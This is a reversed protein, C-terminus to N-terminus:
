APADGPTSGFVAGPAGRAIWRLVEKAAADAAFHHNARWEARGRSGVFNAVGLVAVFPIGFAACATAVGYAELHEVHAGTARAIRSAVTDDVTIGLTTAVDAARIGNAVFADVLRASATMALPMPEPFQAAGDLASPDVLRVHRSVCAEGIAFAPGPRESEPLAYAGCTGLAVVVSPRVDRIHLAAHAAAAPLGIGCALAVVRVAGGMADGSGFAAAAASAAHAHLPALEPGFAALLLIDPDVSVGPAEETPRKM